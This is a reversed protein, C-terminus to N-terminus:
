LGAPLLPATAVVVAVLGLAVAPAGVLWRWWRHHGARRGWTALGVVTAGLLGLAGLAWALRGATTTPQDLAARSPTVAAPAPTGPGAPAPHALSSGVLAARVVLRTAASYRPNCTTLTLVAGATPALVAVDTPAVVVSGTVAYTFRGQVTTLEVLDGPTLAQLDYFPHGYTTRHGAVAANGAQGPLPTGPYHGPGEALDGAAVGQVVVQDLGLAPIVLRALPRGEAPPASWPAVAPARRPAAPPGLAHARALVPALQRSLEAQRRGELWGTGWLQYAVM